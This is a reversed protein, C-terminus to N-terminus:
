SCPRQEPSRSRSLGPLSKQVPSRPRRRRPPGQQEESRQEQDQEALLVGSPPEVPITFQQAERIADPDVKAEHIVPIRGGVIVLRHVDIDVVWVSRAVQIAPKRQHLPKEGNRM